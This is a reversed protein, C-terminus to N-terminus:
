RCRRDAQPRCDELNASQRQPELRFLDLARRAVLEPLRGRFIGEDPPAAQGGDASVIYIDVTVKRSRISLRHQRGDPSWRPTGTDTHALNTLQIPNAGENDCLWIQSRGRVTPALSSERATRRLVASQRRFVHFLDAPGARSKRATSQRLPLRWINSDFRSSPLPWAIGRALFPRISSVVELQKSGNLPEALPPFRGCAGTGSGGLPGVSSFVIERGDATWALGLMTSQVFTLRKPEGGAVPVM